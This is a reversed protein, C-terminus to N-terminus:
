EEGRSVEEVGLEDIRGGILHYVASSRGFYPEGSLADGGDDAVRLGRLVIRSRLRVRGNDRRGSGWTKDLLDGNLLVIGRFKGLESGQRMASGSLLISPALGLNSLDM